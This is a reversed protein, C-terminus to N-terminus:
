LGNVLAIHNEYIHAFESTDMGMYSVHSFDEIVPMVHWVGKELPESKVDDYKVSPEDSPASASVVSILGDNKRWEPTMEVSDYIEGDFKGIMYSFLTFMPFMDIPPVYTGDSKQTVQEGTYSFYYIGDVIDINENLEAAGRITLDYGCNDDYKVIDRLGAINFGGSINQSPVPTLAYQELQFDWFGSIPKIGLLTGMAALLYAVNLEDYLINAVPTGNHPASMTCVSYVYNGKGGKFFESVDAGSKEIEQESGNELLYAFLRVTPGGLSHGILNIKIMNGNEDLKGFSDMLKNGEYSRGFRAHHHEQSHAEGYDVRTGTLQAYLECARDWNSSVKGVSASYCEIGKAQLDSLMDGNVGGWYPMISDVKDYSGWGMMGHVFVYPYSTGKEEEEGAATIGFIGIVLSICILVAAIKKM